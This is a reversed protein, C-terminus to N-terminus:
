LLGTDFLGISRIGANTAWAQFRACQIARARRPITKLYHLRDTTLLRCHLPLRFSKCASLSTIGDPMVIAKQSPLM